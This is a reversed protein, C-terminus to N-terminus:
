LPLFFDAPAADADRLPVPAARILRRWQRWQRWQHRRFDPSGAPRRSDRM